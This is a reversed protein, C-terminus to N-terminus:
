NFFQSINMKKLKSSTMIGTDKPVVSSKGNTKKIVNKKEEVLQNGKPAYLEKRLEDAKRIRPHGQQDYLEYKEIISLIQNRESCNPDSFDVGSEDAMEAFEDEAQTIIAKRASEGQERQEDASRTREEIIGEAEKRAETRLLTQWEKFAEVDDGFLRRFENPVTAEGKEAAPEAKREGEQSKLARLEKLEEQMRVWRPNKHFPVEKIQAKEESEEVDADDTKSEEPSLAPADTEESETHSETSEDDEVSVEAKAGLLSAISPEQKFM